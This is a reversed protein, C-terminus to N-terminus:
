ASPKSHVTKQIDRLTVIGRVRVWTKESEDRLVDGLVMQVFSEAHRLTIILAWRHVVVIIMALVITATARWMTGSSPWVFVFWLAVAAVSGVFAAGTGHVIDALSDSRPNASKIYACTGVREHWLANLLCWAGRVTLHDSISTCSPYPEGLFDLSLWGRSEARRIFPRYDPTWSLCQYLSWLLVHHFVSFVYGLVAFALFASVPITLDFRNFRSILDLSPWPPGSLVMLLAFEIGATGGPFIYRLFRRAEDM